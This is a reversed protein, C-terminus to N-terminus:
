IWNHAPIGNFNFFLVETHFEIISLERKLKRVNLNYNSDKQLKKEQEKYFVFEEKANWTDIPLCLRGSIKIKNDKLWLWRDSEIRQNLAFTYPTFLVIPVKQGFLDFMKRLFIYPIFPKGNTCAGIESAYNKLSSIDIINKNFPPNCLIVRKRKGYSDPTFGCSTEIMEIDNKDLMFFDKQVFKSFYENDRIDIGIAEFDGYRANDYWPWSLVGNGCGIDYIFSPSLKWGIEYIREALWKPTKVCNDKQNKFYNNRAVNYM